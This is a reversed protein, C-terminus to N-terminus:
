PTSGPGSEQVCIMTGEIEQHTSKPPKFQRLFSNYTVISTVAIMLYSSQKNPCINTRSNISPSIVQCDILMYHYTHGDCLMHVQYEPAFAHKGFHHWLVRLLARRSKKATVGVAKFIVAVKHAKVMHRTAIGEEHLFDHFAVEYQNKFHKARKASKPADSM